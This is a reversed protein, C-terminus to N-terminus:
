ATAEALVGMMYRAVDADNSKQIITTTGGADPAPPMMEPEQQVMAIMDSGGGPEEASAQPGKPSTKVPEPVGGRDIFRQLKAPVEMGRRNYENFIARLRNVGDKQKLLLDGYERMYAKIDGKTFTRLTKTFRAIEQAAVEGQMKKINKGGILERTAKKRLAEEVLRPGSPQEGPQRIKVPKKVIVPKKPTKSAVQAATPAPPRVLPRVVPPRVMPPKVMPPKVGGRGKTIALVAAGILSEILPQFAPDVNISSLFDGTADQEMLQQLRETTVLDTFFKTVPNPKTPPKPAPPVVPTGEEGGPRRMEPLIPCTFDVKELKDLASDFTDLAGGFPTKTIMIRTRQEEQQLRGTVGTARDALDSGLMSGGISGLLGGILAGPVAGVGGFLAGVAGGAAAGAKMGGLGGLLGGAAGVGAQLNTQGAGKRMAFDLGTFAVNAIGGLRGIRPARGPRGPLRRPATPKGRLRRALAAVGLGGMLQKVKNDGESEKDAVAQRAALLTSIRLDSLKKRRVLLQNETAANERAAVTFLRAVNVSTQKATRAKLLLRDLNM